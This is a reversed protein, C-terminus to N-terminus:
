PMPENLTVKVLIQSTSEKSIIASAKGNKLNVCRFQSDQVHKLYANASNGGCAKESPLLFLNSDFSQYRRLDSYEKPYSSGRNSLNGFCVEEIKSPLSIEFSKQAKASKWVEDVADQFDSRFINVQTCRSTDLFQSIFYIAVAVTAIIIIISFIMGFSIQLQGRKM